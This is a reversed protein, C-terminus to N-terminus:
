NVAIWDPIRAYSSCNRPRCVDVMSSKLAAPPREITSLLSLHFRYIKFAGVLTIVLDPTQLLQFFCTILLLLKAYHINHLIVFLVATALQDM